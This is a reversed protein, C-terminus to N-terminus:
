PEGSKRRQDGHQKKAFEYSARIHDFDAGPNYARITDELHQFQQDLTM